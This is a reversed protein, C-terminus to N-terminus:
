NNKWSNERTRKILVFEEIKENQKVKKIFNPSITVKWQTSPTDKHLFLGTCGTHAGQSHHFPQIQYSDCKKGPCAPLQRRLLLHLPFPPALAAALWSGPSTRAWSVVGGQQLDPWTEPQQLLLGSPWTQIPEKEELHCRQGRTPVQHDQDWDLGSEVHQRWSRWYRSDTGQEWAAPHGAGDRVVSGRGAATSRVEHPDAECLLCPREPPKAWASAFAPSIAPFQGSEQASGTQKRQRNIGSYTLM